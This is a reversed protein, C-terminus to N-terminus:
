LDSDSTYNSSTDDFKPKEERQKKENQVKQLLLNMDIEKKKPKLDRSFVRETDVPQSIKQELERMKEQIKQEDRKLKELQKNIKKEESKKAKNLISIERNQERYIGIEREYRESDKQALSLYYQLERKKSPDNKLNNWLISCDQIKLNKSTKRIDKCFYLYASNAKKPKSVTEM